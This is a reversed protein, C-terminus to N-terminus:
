LRSISELLKLPTYGEEYYMRPLLMAALKFRKPDRSLEVLKDRIRRVYEIYAESNKTEGGWDYVAYLVSGFIRGGDLEPLGSDKKVLEAIEVVFRVLERGRETLSFGDGSRALVGRAVLGQAVLYPALYDFGIGSIVGEPTARHGRSRAAAAVEEALRRLAQAQRRADLLEEAM